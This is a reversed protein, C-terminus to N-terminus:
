YAPRERTGDKEIEVTLRVAGKIVENMRKRATVDEMLPTAAGADAGTSLMSRASGPLGPMAQGEYRVGRRVFGGRAYINTSSPRKELNAILSDLDEPRYFGPDTGQEIMAYTPADGVVIEATTGPRADRPVDLTLKETYTEGRYQRLRINLDLSEGPVVTTHPLSVHEITAERMNQNVDLQVDLEEIRIEQFPNTTLKTLPDLVLEMMPSIQDPGAFYDKLVIPEERDEIRIKVIAFMTRPTGIGEWQLLSFASAYFAAMPAVQWYGAATYDFIETRDGDVYVRCPFMYPRDGIRGAIGSGRDQRFRGIVSGISALRFSSLSSPIVAEVNGSVMPLDTVGTGLMPHGFAIVREGDTWSLTGMGALEMDGGLILGGVPMGPELEEDTDMEMGQSESGSGAQVPMLGSRRLLPAARQYTEGKVGGLAVPIPLPEMPVQNGDALEAGLGEPLEGRSLRVRERWSQIELLDRLREERAEEVTLEGAVFSESLERRRRTQSRWVEMRESDDDGAEGPDRDRLALLDEAATIGAIPQTAFPFGYAVAGALRAEEDSGARLYIPSGSMGAILGTEDLEPSHLRALIVGSGPGISRTVGLVEVEFEERESGSFVTVGYGEMGPKVESLPMIDEGAGPDMSEQDPAAYLGSHGIMMFLVFLVIPRLHCRVTRNLRSYLM